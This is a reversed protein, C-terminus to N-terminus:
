LHLTNQKDTITQQITEAETIQCLIRVAFYIQKLKIFNGVLISDTVSQSLSIIVTVTVYANLLNYSM